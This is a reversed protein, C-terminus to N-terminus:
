SVFQLVPAKAAPKGRSPYVLQHLSHHGDSDLEDFLLGVGSDRTHVVMAGVRLPRRAGDLIVAVEVMANVPLQVCGTDVFVGGMGIDQTRGRVLGLGRYNIVVDLALPKRISCRHEM